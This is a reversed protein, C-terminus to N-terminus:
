KSVSRKTKRQSVLCLENHSCVERTPSWKGKSPSVIVVTLPPKFPPLLLPLAAFVRLLIGLGSRVGGECGYMCVGMCVCVCVGLDAWM